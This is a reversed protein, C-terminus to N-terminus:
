EHGKLEAVRKRVGPAEPGDPADALYRELDAVAADREGARAHAEGRTLYCLTLEPRKTLATTEDEIAGRLDGLNLRVTGRNMFYAGNPELAIAHECDALAGQLDGLAQKVAARNIYSLTYDPVVAIARDYAALAKALERSQEWAIGLELWAHPDHPALETARLAADRAQQAAGAHRAAIACALFARGDRPSLALAREADRRAGADDNRSARAVARASWAGALSGDCAIAESALATAAEWDRAALKRETAALLARAKERSSPRAVDHGPPPPSRLALAGALGGAGLLALLLALIVLGSRRRAGDGAALARAFALGDQPRRELERALAREIVAVLARPAEPRRRALPEFRADCARELMELASEGQFAPEGALCEYLIAGLAFVDAPPGVSRAEELQEPAMYGATGRFAGSRSLDVSQSAGKAREDFHKALGLDAILPAGAADFLVNEPKLDRHVVGRAHARGLAAGLARGLERTEEVSLPGRALRDRLTGGERLPMAFWPGSPSSGQALLPVFGDERGFAALLRAEREFRALAEPSGHALLKLAVETGDPARGRLVVGMGGRGLTGTVEYDGLRQASM